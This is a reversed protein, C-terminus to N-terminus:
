SDSIHIQVALIHWIFGSNIQFKALQIIKQAVPMKLSRSAVFRVWQSLNM